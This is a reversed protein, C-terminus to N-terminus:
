GLAFCLDKEALHPAIAGHIGFNLLATWQAPSWVASKLRPATELALCGVMPQKQKRRAHNPGPEEMAAPVVHPGNNGTMGLAIKHVCMLTAGQKKCIPDLVLIEETRLRKYCKAFDKSTDVAVSRRVLPGIQGSDGGATKLVGKRAANLQSRKMAAAHTDVTCRLFEHDLDCCRVVEALRQVFRIIRGNEGLATKRAHNNM